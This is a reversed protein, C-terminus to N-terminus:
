ALAELVRDRTMPLERIRRGTANFVANGIAAVVPIIPPEGVNKAGYPGYADDPEIFRVEIEPADLHTMVKAGYYGPNVPIGTLRDYILEEHLAMGIGMTVGGKVQSEATLPNVIRGSDHLALYRLVRIGGLETDVEVEAFHAASSYRARGDLAPRPTAQAILTRSELPGAASAIQRRLDEAAEVIAQGTHTTTRSGSEGVSYPCRDTDGWVVTVDALDMGMAEAALQAMATKTATGIDTVGIHLFLRGRELRLVASSPGLHATFMGLAMGVGRRRPGSGTGARRWRARWGFRRAGETICEPLAWSTYPTEDNYARTVNRLHFDVPDIALEHAVQDMVSEIGWVGQPYAPGRFNASVTMNTYAPSVERHVNPCRFQEIGAIGGGSKRHPGMGSVGRLEIAQLTGDRAAGVRYHQVTPWRGHVGLFDDKRTLELKVPRGAERALLAAILDADQCQNKNGFGGGMYECVVRVREPPLDLDRAVDARCNAIGQTPTWLTLEDGEWRAVASRPEMQANSHHKSVYTEEVVVASAAFGAAMDGRRYVEPLAEGDRRRSLNGGPQIEVAGARLADEPDLVFDLPEYDVEIARIAAEAAHRDVAAVAAVPDGVFRVPNNFLYRPNQLDGSGWVTDCNERTLVAHVGPMERARRTDVSRIRAHPHPSRLVRAYAMGPLKVDGTYRAAGTVREVGDIRPRSRGVETMPEGDSAPEPPRGLVAAVYRNYNSCRCLNGAMGHRVEDETPNPTASVVAKAAMLQGSTCFGCQPGDGAVFAAQLPDLRGDVALGEVTDVARGDAWVALQSCSYVPVGDLHVTCAGCEGRDCGIKTGTLDLHDRLLEALTWRDEVDVTRRVGNVTLTIATRPPSETQPAQAGLPTRAAPLTTAATVAAGSQLFTRRSVPSM